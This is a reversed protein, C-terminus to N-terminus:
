CIILCCNVICILFHVKFFSLLLLLVNVVVEGVLCCCLVLKWLVQVCGQCM